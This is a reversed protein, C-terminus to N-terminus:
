RRRGTLPRRRPKTPDNVDKARRRQRERARSVHQARLAQVAAELQAVVPGRRDPPAILLLNGARRARQLAPDDVLDQEAVLGLLRAALMPRRADLCSRALDCLKAPAADRHENLWEDEDTQSREPLHSM